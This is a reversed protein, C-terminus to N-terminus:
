IRQDALAKALAQALTAVGLKKKVNQLHFTVTRESIKLQSGIQAYTLGEGVLALCERERRSLSLGAASLDGASLRLVREHLYLAGLQAMSQALRLDVEDDEYYFCLSAEEEHDRISLDFGQVLGFDCLERYIKLQEPTDQARRQGARWYQALVSKRAASYLPDVAFYNNQVFHRVWRHVADSGRVLPEPLRRCSYVVGSLGHPQMCEFLIHAAASPTDADLISLLKDYSQQSNM